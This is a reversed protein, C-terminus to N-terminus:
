LPWESIGGQLNNTKFGHGELLSCTKGSRNGSRCFIFYEKSKDLKLVKSEFDSDYYDINEADNISGGAYEEPTRVDMLVANESKQYAEKFSKGNKDFDNQQASSEM